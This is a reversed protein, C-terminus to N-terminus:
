CDGKLDGGLISGASIVRAVSRLAPRYVWNVKTCVGVLRVQPDNRCASHCGASHGRTKASGSRDDCASRQGPMTSSRSLSLDGFRACSERPQAHLRCTTRYSGLRGALVSDATQVTVEILVAGADVADITGSGPRIQDRIKLWM